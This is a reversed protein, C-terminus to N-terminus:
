LIDKLLKAQCAALTEKPLAYNSKIWRLTMSTLGGVYFAAVSDVPGALLCGQAEKKKLYDTIYSSFSRYLMESMEETLNSELIHYLIKEKRQFHDLITVFGDKPNANVILCGIEESLRELCYSLLEYKDQFHLYFTGRSLQACECIENVTIKQFTKKELLNLLAKAIENKSDLRSTNM